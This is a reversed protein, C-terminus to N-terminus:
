PPCAELWYKSQFEDGLESFIISIQKAAYCFGKIKTQFYRQYWYIAEWKNRNRLINGLGLYAAIIRKNAALRYYEEEKEIEDVFGYSMGVSYLAIGSGQEVAELCHKNKYAEKYNEDKRVFSLCKEEKETLGVVELPIFLFIFTLFYLSTKSFYIKLWGFIVNHYLLMAKENKKVKIM